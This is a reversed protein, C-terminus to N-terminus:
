ASTVTWIGQMGLRKEAYGRANERLAATLAKDELLGLVDRAMAKPNPFPTLLGTENPTIFETM